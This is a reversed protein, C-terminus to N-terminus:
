AGPALCAQDMVRQGAAQYARFVDVLTPVPRGRPDRSAMALRQEDAPTHAIAEAYALFAEGAQRLGDHSHTNECAERAALASAILHAANMAKEANHPCAQCAAWEKLARASSTPSPRNRHTRCEEATLQRELVPCAVRGYRALVAAEIRATSGVYRGHLALSLSSRAYGLETAVQTLGGPNRAAIEAQLLDRWSM